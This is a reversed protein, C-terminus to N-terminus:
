AVDESSWADLEDSIDDRSWDFEHALKRAGKGDGTNLKARFAAVQAQYVAKAKAEEAADNDFM